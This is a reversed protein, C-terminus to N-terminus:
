SGIGGNAQIFITGAVPIESPRFQISNTNAQMVDERTMVNILAYSVGAVGMIASYASSVNLLMGFSTSPPSLLSQLATTVNAVVVAQSYNPQVQLTISTGSTGIDVPVLDPTGITLSTGALMRNAFYNLINDQLGTGPALYNPGLVYLTVSTSHNATASAQLVGPVNLALNAFDQTSVARQQTSYALPANARVQDNTEPDSGGGMASSQYLVTTDSQFPIDIGTVPTVLVGVSGAPQNGASGVGVTYSAYVTLGIGPIAGNVNDGFQINTLNNEDVFLSYVLDGPGSDVLFTVQNWQVPSVMSSIFVSVTGDEIFPQPITFSQGATGNSLGVQVQTFSIGQTVTVTATENAVVDIDSNTEYIVPQDVSTNFGTAVQTGAPVVINTGTSNAFTVTGTAASGQSPVYGLLQALNIISLRQTATPLYAEQTLRDGYFSLIDGMYAFLEVLMVGFDGESSTDWDPMITQAYALMSSVFGTWDKSTYDITSPVQLVPFYAPNPQTQLPTTM